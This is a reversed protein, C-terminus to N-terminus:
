KGGKRLYTKFSIRLNRLRYNVKTQSWKMKKAIAVQKLGQICLDLIQKDEKPLLSYFLDFDVKAKIDKASYADTIITLQANISLDEYYTPNEVYYSIRDKIELDAVDKCNPTIRYRVKLINQLENIMARYVYTFFKAPNKDDPRKTYRESAKWVVIRLEQLNDEYDKKVKFRHLLKHMLPEYSKILKNINITKKM